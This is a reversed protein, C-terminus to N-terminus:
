STLNTDFVKTFYIQDKGWIECMKPSFKTSSCSYTHKNIFWQLMFFEASKEDSLSIEHLYFSNM